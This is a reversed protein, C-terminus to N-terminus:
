YVRKKPPIVKVEDTLTYLHVPRYALDVKNGSKLYSVTHKMWTDDKRDPYDERAHAGRSEKRNLASVITVFSQQIINELELAEMLDSNWIMSSDSVKVSKYFSYVENIKKLGESLSSEERFVACHKQM